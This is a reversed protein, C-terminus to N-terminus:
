WARAYRMPWFRSLSANRCIGPVSAPVRVGLRRIRLKPPLVVVLSSFALNSGAYGDHPASSSATLPAPRAPRWKLFPDAAVREIDTVMLQRDRVEALDRERLADTLPLASPKTVGRQPTLMCVEFPTSCIRVPASDPVASFENRVV